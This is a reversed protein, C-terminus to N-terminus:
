AKWDEVPATLIPWGQTWNDLVPGYCETALLHQIVYRTKIPVGFYEWGIQPRKGEGTWTPDIAQGDSDMLWAHLTPIIGLAYGECYTFRAFSTAIEACNRFCERPRGAKIESPLPKATFDRGHRVLFASVNPYEGIRTRNMRTAMDAEAKLMDAIMGPEITNTTKM